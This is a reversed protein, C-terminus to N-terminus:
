NSNQHRNKIYLKDQANFSTFISPDSMKHPYDSQTMDM